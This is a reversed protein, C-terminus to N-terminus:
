KVEFGAEGTAVVSGCSVPDNVCVIGKGNITFWPRGTVATGNHTSNGDTHDPFLKGDVLVPKGNITLGADAEATQRSPFADHGSCVSDLTGAAPM